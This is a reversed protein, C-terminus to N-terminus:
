FKLKLRVDQNFLPLTAIKIAEVLKAMYTYNLTSAEDNVTHYLSNTANTCMITHAAIKLKLFPYNDSRQWLHQQPYSDEKFFHKGYLSANAQELNSNLVDKINSFQTATIFPSWKNPIGLMELNIVAIVQSPSSLGALYYSGLEDIEEGDFAIFFITRLPQVTDQKILNALTLLAAVGSANDNAGNYITDRGYPPHFNPYPNTSETGVHDYHASFIVVEDKLSTGAIAGLVNKLTDNFYLFPTFYDDFGAVPRLGIRRMETAIFNAAIRNERTGAFRGKLSDSALFHVYQKLQQTLATDQARISKNYFFLLCVILLYKRIHQIKFNTFSLKSIRM